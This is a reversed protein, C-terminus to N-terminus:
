MKLLTPNIHQLFEQRSIETNEETAGSIRYDLRQHLLDLNEKDFKKTKLYKGNTIDYTVRNNTKRDGKLIFDMTCIESATIKDPGLSECYKIREHFFSYESNPRFEYNFNTFFSNTKRNM